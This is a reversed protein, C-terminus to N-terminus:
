HQCGLWDAAKSILMQLGDYIQYVKLIEMMKGDDKLRKEM